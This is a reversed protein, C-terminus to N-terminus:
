DLHLGRRKIETRYAELISTATESEPDIGFDAWKAKLGRAQVVIVEDSMAKIDELLQEFETM